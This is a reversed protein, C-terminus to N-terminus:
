QKYMFYYHTIELGIIFSHFRFHFVKKNPWEPLSPSPLNRSIRDGGGWSAHQGELAGGFESVQRQWKNTKPIPVTSMQVSM